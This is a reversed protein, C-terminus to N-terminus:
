LRSLPPTVEYQIDKIVLNLEVALDIHTSIRFSDKSKIIKVKPRLPFLVNNETIVGVEGSSLLILTGEPYPVVVKAFAKVVDFDFLSGGGGMIYELAENPCLARRYPRDSTLADYVDAVAVIRALKHIDNGKKQEPYGQGNVKEHHQLVIIRMPATIDFSGKLYEYGKFSHEKIIEFEGQTLKDNKLIIEKPIFVKGIDHLLAGMCLTYLEDRKLQLQIGIIISLIAVNVCHQYTYNDASKIDVINVLVKNQSLVEDVITATIDGISQFYKQRSKILEKQQGASEARQTYFTYKELSNFTSKITQITKQRLEPKIIDEIVNDSYEDNIYISLIQLMKIRRLMLQTLQVGERLLVRGDNDYITKALYSGEHVAEVPIIRM